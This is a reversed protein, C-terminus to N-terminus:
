KQEQQNTTSAAQQLQANVEAVSDSLATQVPVGQFCRDVVSTISRFHRQWGPVPPMTESSQITQLARKFSFSMAPDRSLKDAVSRRFPLRFATSCWQALQEPQMLFQLFKKAAEERRATSHFISFHAGTIITKGGKEMPIPLLGLQITSPNEAAIGQLITLDSTFGFLFAAKSASFIRVAADRDETRVLINTKEADRLWELAKVAPPSDYVAMNKQEDFLRGGRSTIFADIIVPDQYFVISPQGTQAALQSALSTFQQWDKIEINNRGSRLLHENAFLVVTSEAWPVSLVSQGKLIEGLLQPQADAIIRDMGALDKLDLLLGLRNYERAMNPFVISIDPTLRTKDAVLLKRYIDSYSQYQLNVAYEPNEKEFAEVLEHLSRQAVEDPFGHWLIIETRKSPEKKCQVLVCLVALILGASLTRLIGRIM